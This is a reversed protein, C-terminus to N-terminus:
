GQSGDVEKYTKHAKAKDAQDTQPDEVVGSSGRFVGVFHLVGTESERVAYMFPRNAQFQVEKSFGSRMAFGISTAAAAVTGKEDVRLTAAHQIDSIVVGDAFLSFDAHNTFAENMGLGELAKVLGTSLHFNADFKPLEVVTRHSELKSVIDEIDEAKLGLIFEKLERGSVWSKPLFILMAAKEGKYPLELVRVGCADDEVTRFEGKIKMTALQISKQPTLHFPRPITDEFPKLWDAKLYAANVLLMATQTDLSGPDVVSTILGDTEKSVYDNIIHATLTTQDFAVKSIMDKQMFNQATTKLMMRQSLFLKNATKLIFGAEDNKTQLSDLLSQTSNKDTLGLVKEMETKTKGEAGFYSYALTIWVSFPAFVFDDEVPVVQRFVNLGFQVVGESANAAAAARGQLGALWATVVLVLM